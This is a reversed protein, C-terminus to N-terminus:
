QQKDSTNKGLFCMKHGSAFVVVRKMTVLSYFTVDASSHSIRQLDNKEWNDLENQISKSYNRLM